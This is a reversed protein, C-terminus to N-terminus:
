SKRIRAYMQLDEFSKLLESERTLGSDNQWVLADKWLDVKNDVLDLSM